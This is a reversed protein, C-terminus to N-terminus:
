GWTFKTDDRLRLLPTLDLHTIDEGLLVPGDVDINIHEPSSSYGVLQEYDEASPILALEYGCVMHASSADNPLVTEILRVPQVPPKVTQKTSGEIGLLRDFRM